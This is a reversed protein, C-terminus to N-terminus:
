AAHAVEPQRIEGAVERERVRYCAVYLAPLFFLTLFTATVIGGIMAYAMPGWFVEFAIPVMGLSAAAATLLIPRMRHETAEAVADWTDKGQAKVEDIQAMLIVSNRVIIGILSLIGLIAVFGLPKGSILLAAVVGILGLPAVSAVLFLKLVSQLQVMLIFAMLLLMVPIIAKIPGQGKASEEVTGGTQLKYNDPLTNMFDKIAPALQKVITPAEVNGVPNAKVIITPLRHRRWVIPQELEYHISAFASLPVVAGNRLPVQLNALTEVRDRETPQARAVVNIQYISDDVQTITTGGVIGNLLQSIDSSAIGLERARDQQIDVRVVKGPENWDLTPVDLNSNQGVITALRLALSRVRQMDSGSLRYQIERGVPPGLELKHVWVDIGTFKERGLKELRGLVRARAKLDRTLVVIQGFFANQLQADLPLYFRIAGQGVYSSWSEIDGDVHLESEFNDMQKKTEAITSNEPLTFDVLLEPRDASPFFQQQVFGLGICSAIFLGVCTGITIWRHRMAWLLMARFTRVFRGPGGKHQQKKKPLLAVGILPAFVVAVIWSLLLASAIVVFLSYTYEGASSTNFAIPIFGAITVLTGILMPRATSTFAFTAAKGLEDGEELRGVMSEVTIMADDVLLGLAIILAGLSIRQLAIGQIEMVLFVLALVLPISCSVVLGARFGLSVFSVVLVIAIAEVLAETFSSVAKEVVRPQDSVIDVNVGVPLSAVINAMRAKLEKGFTLLNGNKTMAMGLGIAPKGNLRFLTEPPNVDARQIDAIDTLRLYQNNLRLNVKRLSAESAFAGAVRLSIREHGDQITGTPVVANQKQLTAIVDDVNLGLASLKRPSFNLYIVEDQAGIVDMKGMDPIELVERRVQEVYDRLQRMTFGDATFAYINGYVDGFEDNIAPPYSGIPLQSQIDHVHKRVQYFLNPLAKASTTDKFYVFITTAGPLTYSKTYDLSDVQEVEKEIRDTIENMVKDATAGPWQVQIVVTKTTFDPDEQRGLQGYVLIGSAAIIVILFWVFSRHGLAWESLNLKNM